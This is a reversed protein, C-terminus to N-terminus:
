GHESHDREYYFKKIFMNLLPLKIFRKQILVLLVTLVAYGLAVWGFGAAFNGTEQGIWLALAISGFLLVLGGVSLVILTAALSSALNASKEATNLVTLNWRAELYDKFREFLDEISNRLDDLM